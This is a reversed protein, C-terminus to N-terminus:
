GLGTARRMAEVVSPDLETARRAAEAVTPDLEGARRAAEIVAPDLEGARRAAEAVAPDLEGARRAAEAVAPDLETSRQLREVLKRASENLAASYEPSDFRIWARRQPDDRKARVSEVKLDTVKSESDVMLSGSVILDKSIVSVDGSRMTLELGADVLCNFRSTWARDERWAAQDLVMSDAARVVSIVQALVTELPLAALRADVTVGLVASEFARDADDPNVARWLDSLDDAPIPTFMSALYQELRTLGRGYLVRGDLDAQELEEALDRHW